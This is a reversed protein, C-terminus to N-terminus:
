TVWVDNFVVFLFSHFTWAEYDVVFLYAFDFPSDWCSSTFHINKNPM